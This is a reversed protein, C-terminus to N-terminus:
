DNKIKWIKLCGKTALTRRLDKNQDQTQPIFEDSVDSSTDDPLPVNEGGDDRLDEGEDGM